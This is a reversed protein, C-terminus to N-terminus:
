SKFKNNLSEILKSNWEFAYSTGDNFFLIIENNRNLQAKTVDNIDFWLKSTTYEYEIDLGLKEAEEVDDYNKITILSDTIM